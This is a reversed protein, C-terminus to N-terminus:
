LIKEKERAIFDQLTTPTKGTLMQYTTAIPPAAQFRPLFHLLTMVLAFGTQLGERKKKFFFRLPNMHIFRIATGTTATILAAVEYFDKNETGTLDYAQNQHQDFNLLLHATAEGITQVAIWTFTAKKAPFTISQHAIIEPLLATTLNQMFYSPRVFIYQFSLSRIRQEIKNHPIAKSQEVGQVSLFVVESIGSEKAALLLPRFYTDVDSIHPPRLLFLRDVQDFAGAFTAADEFDFRRFQLNPLDVLQQQAKSPQRVAAIIEHDSTLNALHHLLAKGINGTAGTILLRKIGM